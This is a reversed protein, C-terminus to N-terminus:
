RTSWLAGTDGFGLALKTAETLDLERGPVFPGRDLVPVRVTHGDYRLTVLTGCPLTRAAVGLTSSTLFGGCALAGEGGYWSAQVVRYVNVRGLERAARILYPSGAFRLRVRESGTQRATFRIRFRGHPGTHASLLTSWGDAGFAQLSVMRGQLATSRVSAVWGSAAAGDVGLAGSITVSRGALVNLGAGRVSLSTRAPGAITQQLPALSPTATIPALVTSAAVPPEPVYM